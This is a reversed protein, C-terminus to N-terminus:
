IGQDRNEDMEGGGEIVTLAGVVAEQFTRGFLRALVASQCKRIATKVM